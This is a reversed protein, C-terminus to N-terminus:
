VDELLNKLEIEQKKFSVSMVGPENMIHEMTRDVINSIKLTSSLTAYIKVYNEDLKKTVINTLNINTNKASKSLINKIVLEKENTVTIRFLYDEREMKTPMINNTIKKLIINTFLIVFAGTTAELLLGGGCLIGIAAICWLTAATNLGKINGGDKIIVGAGLFGIGSVIQAAIRTIDTAGIQIAFCVFLFAGICVLVNTRLGIAHKGWLRELGILLGLSLCCILRNIFDIYLM